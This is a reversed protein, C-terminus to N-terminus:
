RETMGTTLIDQASQLLFDPVDLPADSVVSAGSPVRTNDTRLVYRLRWYALQQDDTLTEKTILPDDQLCVAACSTAHLGCSPSTM